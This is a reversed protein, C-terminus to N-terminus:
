SVAPRVSRLSASLVCCEVSILMTFLQASVGIFAHALITWWRRMAVPLRQRRRTLHVRGYWFTGLRHLSQYPRLRELDLRPITWWGAGLVATYGSQRLFEAETETLNVAGQENLRNTTGLLVSILVRPDPYERIM